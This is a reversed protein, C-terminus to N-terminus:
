IGFLSQVTQCRMYHVSVLRQWWAGRIQKCCINTSYFITKISQSSTVLTLAANMHLRVVAETQQICTCRGNNEVLRLQVNGFIHLCMSLCHVAGLKQTRLYIRFECRMIDMQKDVHM